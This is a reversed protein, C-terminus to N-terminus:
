NSELQQYFKGILSLVGWRLINEIECDNSFGMLRSCAFSLINEEEEKTTEKFILSFEVPPESDLVFKVQDYFRRFKRETTRSSHDHRIFHVNISYSKGQIVVGSLFPTIIKQQEEKKLIAVLENFESKFGTNFLQYNSNIDESILNPPILSLGKPSSYIIGKKAHEILSIEKDENEELDAENKVGFQHLTRRSFIKVQKVFRIMALVISELNEPPNDFTKYAKKFKPSIALCLELEEKPSLQKKLEEEWKQIHIEQSFETLAIKLLFWLFSNKMLEEKDIELPIHAQISECNQISRIYTLELIPYKQSNNWNSLCIASQVLQSNLHFLNNQLLSAIQGQSSTSPFLISAGFKIPFSYTPEPSLAIQLFNSLSFFHGIMYQAHAGPLFTTSIINAPDQLNSVIDEDIKNILSPPIYFHNSWSHLKSKISLANKVLDLIPSLFVPYLVINTFLSIPLSIPLLENLLKILKLNVTFSPFNLPWKILVEKLEAIKENKTYVGYFYKNRMKSLNLIERKPFKKQSSFYNKLSQAYEEIQKHYIEKEQSNYETLKEMFFQADEKSFEVYFAIHLFDILLSFFQYEEPNNSLSLQVLTNMKEFPDELSHQCETFIKLLHKLLSLNSSSQTLMDFLQTRFLPPLKSCLFFAEDFSIKFIHFCQFLEKKEGVSLKLDKDLAMVYTLHTLTERIQDKNKPVIRDLVILAKEMLSTEKIEEVLLTNVFNVQTDGTPFFLNRLVYLYFCFIDRNSDTKKFLKILSCYLENPIPCLSVVQDLTKKILFHQFSTDFDFPADQDDLVPPFQDNTLKKWTRDVCYCVKFNKLFKERVEPYQNGWDLIEEMWSSFRNGEVVASYQLLMRQFPIFNKGSTFPYESLDLQSNETLTAFLHKKLLNNMNEINKYLSALRSLSHLNLAKGLEIPMESSCLFEICNKEALEEIKLLSFGKENSFYKKREDGEIPRFSQRQQNKGLNQRLAGSNYKLTTAFNYFSQRYENQYKKKSAEELNQCIRGFQIRGFINILQSAKPEKLFNWLQIIPPLDSDRNLLPCFKELLDCQPNTMQGTKNM